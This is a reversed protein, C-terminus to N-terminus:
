ICTLWAESGAGRAARVREAADAIRVIARCPLLHGLDLGVDEAAHVRGRGAHADAADLEYLTYDLGLSGAEDCVRAHTEGGRDDGDERVLCCRGSCLSIDRARTGRSWGKIGGGFRSASAEPKSSLSSLMKCSSILNTDQEGHAATQKQGHELSARRTVAVRLPKPPRIRVRAEMAFLITDVTSLKLGRLSALEGMVGLILTIALDISRVTRARRICTTFFYAAKDNKGQFATGSLTGPVGVMGEGWPYLLVDVPKVVGADFYEVLRAAFAGSRNFGGITQVLCLPLTKSSIDM